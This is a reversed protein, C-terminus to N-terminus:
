GRHPAREVGALIIAMARSADDWTPLRRAARRAGEAYRERVSRDVLLPDLAARLADADGPEVLVGADPPVIESMAGTRTSVIPLGRALAEGVAMGYGEYLTALVFLDAGQYRRELAADDLEGLFRVRGGLGQEAVQRTLRAATESDRDASGVCDLRWGDLPLAGLAAFLVAHGKRPTLTAVSLMQVDPGGSGRSLEAADTGPQVVALRDREVGLTHVAEATAASTGVVVRASALARRESEVLRGAVAPALGTEAGLPHHVLAVLRLRDREREVLEPMAGMALGDVVVLGDDPLAALRRAADELADAPPFPFRADLTEVRVRWGGARLGEIIRRDYGYGGTRTDLSGPLVFTLDPM